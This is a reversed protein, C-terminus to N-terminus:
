DNDVEPATVAPLRDVAPATDASDRVADAPKDASATSTPVEPRDDAPSTRIAEVPRDAAPAMVPALADSAPSRVAAVAANEPATVTACTVAVPASLATLASIPELPKVEAPVIVALASLVAPVIFARRATTPEDPTDVDPGIVAALIETVVSDAVEIDAVPVTDSAVSVLEPVTVTAASSTPLEPRLVPPEAVAADTNATLPSDAAASVAPEDPMVVLLATVAALMDTAPATLASPMYRVPASVIVSSVADATSLAAPMTTPLLPRVEDESKATPVNDALVSM